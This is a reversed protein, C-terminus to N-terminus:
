AADEERYGHLVLKRGNAYVAVGVPRGEPDYIWWDCAYGRDNAIRFPYSRYRKLLTRSTLPLIDYIQELTYLLARERRGTPTAIKLGGLEGPELYLPCHDRRRAEARAFALANELQGEYWMGLTEAEGDARLVIFPRAEDDRITTTERRVLELRVTLAPRSDEPPTNTSDQDSM